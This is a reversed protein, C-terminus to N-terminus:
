IIEFRNRNNRAFLQLRQKAKCAFDFLPMERRAYSKDSWTTASELLSDGDRQGNKKRTTIVTSTNDCKHWNADIETWWKQENAVTTDM